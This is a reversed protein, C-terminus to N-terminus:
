GVRSWRDIYHGQRDGVAGPRGQRDRRIYIAVFIQSGGAPPLRPRHDAGAAPRARPRRHRYGLGGRKARSIRDGRARGISVTPAWLLPWMSTTYGCKCREWPGDLLPMVGVHCRGLEEVETGEQWPVYDIAVGPISFRGSGGILRFRAGASRSSSAAAGRHAFPLAASSVIRTTRMLATGHTMLISSSRAAASFLWSWRDRCHLRHGSHRRM